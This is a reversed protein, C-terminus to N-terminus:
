DAAVMYNHDWEEEKVHTYLTHGTSPSYGLQLYKAKLGAYELLASQSTHRNVSEKWMIMLNPSKKYCSSRQMNPSVGRIYGIGWPSSYARPTNAVNPTYRRIRLPTGAIFLDRPSHPPLGVYVLLILLSSLRPVCGNRIQFPPFQWLGTPDLCTYKQVSTPSHTM